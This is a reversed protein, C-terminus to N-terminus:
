YWGIEQSHKWAESPNGYKSRIYSLGWTIQISADEHWNAGASAMKDAPLSQPIGYAGSSKNEANWRWNSEKTWLKVLDEWMAGTWGLQACAAQAYLKAQEPTAHVMGNPNDAPAPAPTPTPTPAPTQKIAQSTEATQKSSQQNNNNNQQINQNQAGQQASKNQTNQQNTNTKQSQTQSTQSNPKKNEEQKNIQKSPKSENQTKPTSKAGIAVIQDISPKVISQKILTASQAKGDVYTVNYLDTREGNIGSQRVVRVGSPLNPDNITRTNFPVIVNRSEKGHTVRLIRLVTQSGNESVTVRDEKGLVIGLSDLISSAPLTGDPAIRSKGDCIVEVPGKKNISLGGTLKDYINQLNVTIKAAHDANAQFFGILQDVSTAVTWFPITIGDVTVSTQYASRVTVTTHDALIEGSTSIVQDHTKVPIKQEQLLRQATSAYTTVIRTKGNVILAVSKRASLTFIGTSSIILALVCVLIRIRRMVVFRQPTWRRAM